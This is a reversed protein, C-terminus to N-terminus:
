WIVDIPYQRMQADKSILPIREHIAQAVIMRDFPDGHLPTLKEFEILHESGIPLMEVDNDRMETTIFNEFGGDFKLRGRNHKIALEWIGAVSLLLQTGRDLVLPCVAPSLKNEDLAMWLFVHSDILYIV